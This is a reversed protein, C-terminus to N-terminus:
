CKSEGNGSWLTSSLLKWFTFWCHLIEYGKLFFYDMRGGL